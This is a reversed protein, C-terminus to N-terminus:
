TKMNQIIKFNNVVVYSLIFNSAISVIWALTKNSKHLKQLLYHNGATLGMKVALFALDNNVFPKLFSNRETVGEYKLAKRTSIYDAVNLALISVLSATFFSKEIKELKLRKQYYKQINQNIQLTEPSLNFSNKKTLFTKNKLTFKSSDIASENKTKYEKTLVFETESNQATLYPSILMSIMTMLVTIRLAKKYINM